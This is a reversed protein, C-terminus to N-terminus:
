GHAHGAGEDNLEPGCGPVSEEFPLDIVAFTGCDDATRVTGEDLQPETYIHVMPPDDVWYSDEPCTGGAEPGAAITAPEGSDHEHSGLRSAGLLALVVVLVSTSAM